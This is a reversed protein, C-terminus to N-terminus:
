VIGETPEKRKNTRVDDLVVLIEDYSKILADVAEIDANLREVIGLKTSVLSEVSVEFKHVGAPEGLFTYKPLTFEFKDLTIDKEANETYSVDKDSIRGANYEKVVKSIQEPIEVM